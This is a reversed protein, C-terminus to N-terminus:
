NCEWHKEARAVLPIANIPLTLNWRWQIMHSRCPRHKTESTRLHTRLPMAPAWDCGRPEWGAAGETIESNALSQSPPRCRGCISRTDETAVTIHGQHTSMGFNGHGKTGSHHSDRRDQKLQCRCAKTNGERGRCQAQWRSALAVCVGPCRDKQAQTLFHAGPHRRWGKM